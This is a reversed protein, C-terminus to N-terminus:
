VAQLVPIRARYECDSRELLDFAFVRLDEPRDFFLPIVTGDSSNIFITIKEDMGRGRLKAVHNFSVCTHFDAVYFSPCM